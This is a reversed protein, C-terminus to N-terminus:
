DGLALALGHQPQVPDLAFEASVSRREHVVDQDIAHRHLLDTLQAIEYRLAPLIIEGPAKLFAEIPQRQDITKRCFLFSRMQVRSAAMADLGHVSRSFSM